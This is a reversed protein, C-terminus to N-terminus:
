KMALVTQTALEIQLDSGLSKVEFEQEKFGVSSFVLTFPLRTRTRLKFDGQKNTITGSVTGKVQVSVDALPEKKDQALVKGTIEILNNNDQAVAMRPLLIGALVLLLTFRVYKKLQVASLAIMTGTTNGNTGAQKM